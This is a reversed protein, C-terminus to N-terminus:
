NKITLSFGINLLGAIAIVIFRSSLMEKGSTTSIIEDIWENYKTIDIYLHGDLSENCYDDSRYDILGFLTKNDVVAGGDYGKCGGFFDPSACFRNVLKAHCIDRNVTTIQGAQIALNGKNIFPDGWGFILFKQGQM